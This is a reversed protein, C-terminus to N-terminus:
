WRDFRQRSLYAPNESPDSLQRFYDEVTTHPPFPVTGKPQPKAEDQPAPREELKDYHYLAMAHNARAQEFSRFYGMHYTKQHRKIEVRWHKRTSDFSVGDPKLWYPHVILKKTDTM